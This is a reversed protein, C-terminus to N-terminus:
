RLGYPCYGASYAKHGRCYGMGRGHGRCYGMGRGYGKGKGMGRGYRAGATRNGLNDCIGDSNQDMYYPKTMGAANVPGRGDKVAIGYAAGRSSGAYVFSVATLLCISLVGVKFLSKM